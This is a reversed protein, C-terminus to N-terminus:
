LLKAFVQEWFRYTLSIENRANKIGGSNNSGSTGTEYSYGVKFNTFNISLIGAIFKESSYTFGIGLKEMLYLTGSLHAIIPKDKGYSVLTAPKLKINDSISFIYAGSFYYHSKLFDTQITQTMDPEGFTLQPMSLGLYFKNSHYMIGFGINPKTDGIDTMFEPDSTDLVSYNTAYNRMGGNISASLYNDSTIQISKAFFANFELQRVLPTKDNLIYLGAVANIVIIPISGTFMLSSPADEVGIFQKHGLISISGSKDM